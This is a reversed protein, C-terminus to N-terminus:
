GRRDDAPDRRPSRALAPVRADHAPERLPEGLAIRPRQVRARGHQADLGARIAQVMGDMMGSPAVIDAGAEAQCVAVQVLVPLAFMVMSALFWKPREQSLLQHSMIALLLVTGITRMGCGASRMGRRIGAVAREPAGHRAVDGRVRGLVIELEPSFHYHVYINGAYIVLGFAAMVFALWVANGMLGAAKGMLFADGASDLALGWAIDLARLAGLALAFRLGGGLLM